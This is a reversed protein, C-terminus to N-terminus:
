EQKRTTSAPTHTPARKVAAATIPAKDDFIGSRWGYLAVLVTGTAAVLDVVVAHPVGKFLTSDRGLTTIGPRVTGVM